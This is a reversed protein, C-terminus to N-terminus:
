GESSVRKGSAASSGSARTATTERKGSKRGIMFTRRAASRAAHRLCRIPAVSSVVRDRRLQEGRGVHHYRRWRRRPDHTSRSCARCAPSRIGACGRGPRCRAPARAASGCPRISPMRRPSSLFADHLDGLHVPLLDLGIQPLSSRPSGAARCCRAAHAATATPRSADQALPDRELRGLREAHRDKRDDGVADRGIEQGIGAADAQADLGIHLM